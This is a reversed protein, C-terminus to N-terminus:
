LIISQPMTQYGEINNNNLENVLNQSVFFDSHIFPFLFLDPEMNEKLRLKKAKVALGLELQSQKSFLDDSSSIDIDFAKEGIINAVCFSSHKFDIIEFDKNVIQLFYYRLVQGKVILIADHFRHEIINFRQFINKAKENMLFGDATINGASVIDTLKAKDELEWKLDPIFDPLSNYVLNTMSNPEDYWKSTYGTPLGKTQFYRGIEKLDTSISILYYQMTSIYINHRLKYFARAVM